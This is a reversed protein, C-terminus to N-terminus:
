KNEYVLFKESNKLTEIKRLRDSKVLFHFDFKSSEEVKQEGKDFKHKGKDFYKFCVVKM